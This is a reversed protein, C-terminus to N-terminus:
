TFRHRDIQDAFEHQASRLADPKRMVLDRSWDFWARGAASEKLAMFLAFDDLWHAQQNRFKEFAGAFKRRVRSDANFHEWARQLLRSKLQRVRPFNVHDAPLPPPQTQARTLLGDQVLAAPSILNPSGAFASLCQYPSEGYGLPLLQWWSQKARSLAHIWRYASPGLDGVGYPGPLSSVHMLLGATRRGLTRKQTAM